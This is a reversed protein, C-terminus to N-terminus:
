YLIAVIGCVNEKEYERFIHKASYYLKLDHNSVKANEDAFACVAFVSAVMALCMILCLARTLKKMM